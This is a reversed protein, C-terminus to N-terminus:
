PRLYLTPIKQRIQSLIRNQFVMQLLHSKSFSSHLKLPWLTFEPHSQLVNFNAFYLPDTLLATALFWSLLINFLPFIRCLYPSTLHSFAKSEFCFFKFKSLFFPLKYTGSFHLSTIFCPKLFNLTFIVTHLITPISHFQKTEKVMTDGSGTETIIWGMSVSYDFPFSAPCQCLLGPM